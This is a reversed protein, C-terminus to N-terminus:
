TGSAPRALLAGLCRDLQEVTFPKALYDDCGAAICRERDSRSSLSTAALIPIRCYNPDSKLSRAVQFGDVKPMMMDLVIVRPNSSQVSELAESGDRATVVEWGRSLLLGQLLQLNQAEDDVILIRQTNM